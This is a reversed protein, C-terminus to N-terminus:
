EIKQNPGSISIAVTIAPMTNPVPAARPAILPWTRSSSPSEPACASCASSLPAL